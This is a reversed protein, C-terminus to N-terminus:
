EAIASCDLATLKLRPLMSALVATAHISLKNGKINLSTLNPLKQAVQFLKILGQDTLGCRSVDLHELLPPLKDFLMTSNSLAVNSMDLHTVDSILPILGFTLAKIIKPTYMKYAAGNPSKCHYMLSKKIELMVIKQQSRVSEVINCEELTLMENLDRENISTEVDQVAARIQALESKTIDALKISM